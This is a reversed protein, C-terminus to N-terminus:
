GLVMRREPALRAKRNKRDMRNRLPFYDSKSLFREGFTLIRDRDHADDILVRAFAYLISPSNSILINRLHGRDKQGEDKKWGAKKYRHHSALALFHPAPFHFAFDARLCDRVSFGKAIMAGQRAM